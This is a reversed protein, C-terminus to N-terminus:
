KAFTWNAVAGDGFERAPINIQRFAVRFSNADRCYDKALLGQPGNIVHRFSITPRDKICFKEDGGEGGWRTGSGIIVAGGLMRTQFADRTQGYIYTEFNIGIYGDPTQGLYLSEAQWYQTLDRIRCADPELTTWGQSTRGGKGAFFTKMALAFYVTEDTKNCLNALVAPKFFREDMSPRTAFADFVTAAMDVAEKRGGDEYEVVLANAHRRVITARKLGDHKRVLLKDGPIITDRAVRDRPLVLEDGDLFTVEYRGDRYAREVKGPYWKGDSWQALVREELELPRSQASLPAAMFSIGVSLLLASKSALKFM